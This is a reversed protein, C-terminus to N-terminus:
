TAKIWESRKKVFFSSKERFDFLFEGIAGAQSWPSNDTHLVVYCSCSLMSSLVSM